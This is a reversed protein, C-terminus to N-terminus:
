CPIISLDKESILISISAIENERWDLEISIRTIDNNLNASGGHILVSLFCSSM